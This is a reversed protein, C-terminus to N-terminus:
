AFAVVTKFARPADPLGGGHAFPDPLESSKAVNQEQNIRKVKISPSLRVARLCPRLYQQYIDPIDLNLQSIELIAINGFPRCLSM